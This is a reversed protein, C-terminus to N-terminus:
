QLGRTLSLGFEPRQRTSDSLHVVPSFLDCSKWGGGVAGHAYCSVSVSRFRPYFTFSSIYNIVKASGTEGPTNLLYVPNHIAKSAALLKHLSGLVDRVLVVEHDTEVLARLGLSWAKHNVVRHTTRGGVDAEFGSRRV